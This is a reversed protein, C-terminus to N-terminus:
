SGRAGRWATLVASWPPLPLTADGGRLRQRALATWLRRPRTAGNASPWAQLLEAAWARAVPQEGARALVALPAASEGNHALRSFLLGASVIRAADNAHGTPGSLAVSAPADAGAFLAAEIGAAALAFPQVSAWADDADRPRERSERLSPLAAALATWPAAQKQLAIGLPHRRAGRSWGHLEESWWALKAEGPRADSGGWAADTLEQLLTAWALTLDRQAQPVFVQVVAWEPWRARFKGLFSDLADDNGSDDAAPLPQNM